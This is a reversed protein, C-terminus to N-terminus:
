DRCNKCILTFTLHSNHRLIQRLISALRDAGKPNGVCCCRRIRYLYDRPYQRYVELDPSLLQQVPRCAYARLDILVVEAVSLSPPFIALLCCPGPDKDGVDRHANRQLIPLSCFSRQQYQPSLSSASCVSKTHSSHSRSLNSKIFFVVCQAALSSKMSIMSRELSSQSAVTEKTLHTRLFFSVRSLYPSASLRGQSLPFLDKFVLCGFYHAFPEPHKPTSEVVM